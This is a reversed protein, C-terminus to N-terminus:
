RYRIPPIGKTSRSSRRCSMSNDCNVNNEGSVISPDSNRFDNQNTSQTDGHHTARDPTEAEVCDTTDDETEDASATQFSHEDDDSKRGNSDSGILLLANEPEQIETTRAQSAGVTQSCKRLQNFHRKWTAHPVDVLCITRGQLKRIRGVIWRTQRSRYDRVMVIEGRHFKPNDIMDDELMTKRSPEEKLVDLRSRLERGLMMQSPSQGTASIVMHQRFPFRMLNRQLDGGETSLKKLAQKTTAVYREVQGNSAPNFPPSTKHTIANATCFAKVKESVFTPDNDTVMVSPIGFRAITERLHKLTTESTKNNTVFAELWKSHADVLLLIYKGGIPGAYDLHIREFCQTTGEWNHMTKPPNRAHVLCATCRLSLEKIDEDIRPWWVHQRALFKMKKVGYHGEHLEALVKARCAEPVVVRHGRLIVSGKYLSFEVFEIGFIKVQQTKESGRLIDLLPKLEKSRKTERSIDEVNLPTDQMQQIMLVDSTNLEPLEESNIPLRSLADANGHDHTSRYVIDFNFSM